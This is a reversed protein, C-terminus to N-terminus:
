RNTKVYHRLKRVAKAVIQRARERTFNFETGVEELTRMHQDLLGFRLEICRRERPPLKELCESVQAYLQEIEETSLDEIDNRRFVESLFWLVGLPVTM